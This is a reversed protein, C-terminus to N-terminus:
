GHRILLVSPKDTATSEGGFDGKLDDPNIKYIDELNYDESM